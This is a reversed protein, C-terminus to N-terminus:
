SKKKKKGKKGKKGKKKGKRKETINAMKTYIATSEYWHHPITFKKMHKNNDFTNKLLEGYKEAFCNGNLEVVSLSSQNHLLACLEDLSRAVSEDEDDVEGIQNLSLILKELKIEPDQLANCIHLLGASQLRNGKLSLVKLKKSRSIIKRLSQGSAPTLGCYDLHLQELKTMGFSKSFEELGEDGLNNFNLNLWIINSKALSNGLEILGKKVQPNLHSIVRQLQLRAISQVKQICKAIISFGDQLICNNICLVSIESFDKALSDGTPQTVEVVAEHFARLSNDSISYNLLLKLKKKSQEAKIHEEMPIIFQSTEEDKVNNKKFQNRLTSQFVDVGINNEEKQTSKGNKKKGGKKKPM